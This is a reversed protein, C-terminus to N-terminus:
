PLSRSIPPRSCFNRAMTLRGLPLYLRALEACVLHMAPAGASTAIRVGVSRGGGAGRGGSPGSSRTSGPTITRRALEASAELGLPRSGEM